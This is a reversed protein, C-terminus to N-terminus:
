GNQGVFRGLVPKHRGEHLVLGQVSDGRAKWFSSLSDRQEDQLQM